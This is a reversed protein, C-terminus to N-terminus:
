AEMCQRVADAIDVDSPLYLEEGGYSPYPAPLAGVRRVPCRLAWFAREHVIAQVQCALGNGASAETVIVVRGTSSAASVLTDVDLPALTRLDLVAASIGERALLEAADVSIRVCPGWAVITADTGDRRLSACPAVEYADDPVDEEVSRYCSMPELFLVPDPSNIAALLMGKADTPTSPAFVKLGPVDTLHGEVADSHLEPARVHGGFPARVTVAIDFRGHTRSRMRPLQDALQHFAQHAFPLFQLEVVPVLGSVALGIAAGVMAAESIPLDVVRDGYREYLGDTARFVGGNRGIDQGLLIVRPDSELAEALASNIARVMNM